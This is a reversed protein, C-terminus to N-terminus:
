RSSPTPELIQVVKQIIKALIRPVVGRARELEALGETRGENEFTLTTSVVVRVAPPVGM